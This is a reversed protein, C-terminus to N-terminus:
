WWNDREAADIVDAQRSQRLRMAIGEAGRWSRLGQTSDLRQDGSSEKRRRRRRLVRNGEAGCQENMTMLERYKEEEKGDAVKISIRGRGINRRGKKRRDTQGEKQM